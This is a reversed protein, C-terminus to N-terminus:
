SSYHSYVQVYMRGSSRTMLDDLSLIDEVSNVFAYFFLFDILLCLACLPVDNIPIHSDPLTAHLVQAQYLMMPLMVLLVVCHSVIIPLDCEECALYVTLLVAYCIILAILTCLIIFLVAGVIQPVWLGLLLCFLMISFVELSVLLDDQISSFRPDLSCALGLSLFIAILSCVIWNLLYKQCFRRFNIYFNYLALGLIIVSLILFRQVKKNVTSYTKIIYIMLLAMLIYALSSGCLQLYFIWKQTLAM